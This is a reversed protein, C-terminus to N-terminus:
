TITKNSFNGLPFVFIIDPLVPIILAWEPDGNRMKVVFYSREKKKKEEINIFSAFKFTNVQKDIKKAFSTIALLYGYFGLWPDVKAATVSDDGHIYYRM